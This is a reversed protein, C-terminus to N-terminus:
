CYFVKNQNMGSAIQENLVYGEPSMPYKV